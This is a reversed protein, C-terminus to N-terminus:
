AAIGNMVIAKTAATHSKIRCGCTKGFVAHRSCIAACSKATLSISYPYQDYKDLLRSNTFVPRRGYKNHSEYFLQDGFNLNMLVILAFGDMELRPGRVLRAVVFQVDIRPIAEGSDDDNRRRATTTIVEERVVAHGVAIRNQGSSFRQIRQQKQCSSLVHSLYLM